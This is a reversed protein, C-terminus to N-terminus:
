FLQSIKKANKVKMPESVPGWSDTRILSVSWNSTSLCTFDETSMLFRAKYTNSLYECVSYLHRKKENNKILKNRLQSNGRSFPAIDNTSVSSDEFLLGIVGTFPIASRDWHFDMRM